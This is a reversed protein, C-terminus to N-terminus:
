KQMMRSKALTFGIGTSSANVFLLCEEKFDPYAPNPASVLAHKLKDFTDACDKTWAFKVGKKTLANLPSTIHAFGKVFHRYYNALGTFTRLEKLNKPACFDRVFHMNERSQAYCGSRPGSRNEAECIFM